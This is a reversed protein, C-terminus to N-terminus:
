LYLIGQRHIAGKIVVPRSIHVLRSFEIATPPEDLVEITDGNLDVNKLLICDNRNRVYWSVRGLYIQWRGSRGDELLDMILKFRTGGFDRSRGDFGFADQTPVKNQEWRSM